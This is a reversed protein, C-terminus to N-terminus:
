RNGQLVNKVELYAKNRGHMPGRNNKDLAEMVVKATEPTHKELQEILEFIGARYFDESEETRTIPYPDSGREGGSGKARPTADMRVVEKDYQIQKLRYISAIQNAVAKVFCYHFDDFPVKKDAEHVKWLTVRLEQEIDEEGSYPHDGAWRKAVKKIYWEYRKLRDEYSPAAQTTAPISTTSTESSM